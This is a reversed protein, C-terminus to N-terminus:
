FNNFSIILGFRPQISEFSSGTLNRSSNMQIAWMIGFSPDITIEGLRAKAGITPSFFSFQSRNGRDNYTTVKMSAYHLFTNQFYFGHFDKNKGLYSRLGFNFETASKASNLLFWSDSVSFNLSAYLSSVISKSSSLSGHEFTIGAANYYNTVVYNGGFAWQSQNEQAKGSVGIFILLCFLFIKM